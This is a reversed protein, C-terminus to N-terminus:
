VEEVPGPDRPLGLAKAIWCNWRHPEGKDRYCRPCCPADCGEFYLEALDELEERRVRVVILESVSM